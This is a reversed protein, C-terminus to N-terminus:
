KKGALSKRYKESEWNAIFNKAAEGMTSLTYGNKEIANCIFVVATITEAIVQAKAAPMNFVLAGTEPNVMAMGSEPMGSGFSFSGTLFVLQDPYLPSELLFKESFKGSVLSETLYPCVAEVYGGEVERVSVHPFDGNELSFARAIRNNVDTHIRLCEDPDDSHAILGHNQMFIAAPRRGTEAEVRALEDRISFTLKAGPDTYEVWGWTYDADALAKEAITKLESCCAALNAYVSHSHAVYKDLISHFGAEVSPRLASLGEITQINKRAEESGAKEVDDFDAVNSGNYFARLNEYNLVAYAADPRIDKLCYGSAKIAMLGNALKASTNGGGGQVYDARAGVESSIRTFHDLCECNTEFFQSMNPNGGNENITNETDALPVMKAIMFHIPLGRSTYLAEHESIYNPQFGSAHLDDTLYTIEFGCEGFYRRSATFLVPNDTKFWIEGGPKLFDRYQHLQRPHTLRRKHHKAKEDWPNCFNIYIREIQDEPGFTDFISMADVASFLLNKPTEGAYELQSNRVSVALVHRVEDIAILNIDPNEHALKVTAVGKGCGIELYIPQKKEFLAPWQNRHTFPKEIFYPCAALEPETWPKRRMRM